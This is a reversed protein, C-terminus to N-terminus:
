REFHLPIRVQGAIPRGDQMAPRYQWRRAAEAAAQDLAEHGSSEDIEVGTLAGTADVRARIWVTGAIGDRWAEAPYRPPNMNKSRIDVSAGHTPAAEAHAATAALAASGHPLLPVALALAIRMMGTGAGHRRAM